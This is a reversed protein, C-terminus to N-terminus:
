FSMESVSLEDKPEAGLFEENKPQWRQGAIGRPDNTATITDQTEEENEVVIKEEVQEPDVRAPLESNMDKQIGTGEQEMSLGGTSMKIAPQMDTPQMSMPEPGTSMTQMSMPQMSMEEMSMPEPETSMPQMDMPQMGMPQMSMPEPEASMTQM